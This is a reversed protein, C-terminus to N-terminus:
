ILICFVEIVGSLERTSPSTKLLNQFDGGTLPVLFSEPVTSRNKIQTVTITDHTHVHILSM